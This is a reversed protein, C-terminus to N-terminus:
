KAHKQRRTHLYLIGELLAVMVFTTIIAPGILSNSYHGIALGNPNVGALHAINYTAVSWPTPLTGLGSILLSLVALVAMINPLNIILLYIVPLLWSAFLAIFLMPLVIGQYLNLDSIGSTFAIFTLSLVEYLVLGKFFLWYLNLVLTRYYTPMDIVAQRVNFFNGTVQEQRAKEFALVTLGIYLWITTYNNQFTALRINNPLSTPLLWISTFGTAIINTAGVVWSIHSHRLKLYEMSLYRNM